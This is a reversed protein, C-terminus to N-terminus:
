FWHILGLRATLGRLKQTIDGKSTAGAPVIRTGLVAKGLNAYGVAVDLSTHRSFAYLWGLSLGYDVNDKRKTAHEAISSTDTLRFTESSLRAWGMTAEGYFANRLSAHWYIRFVM